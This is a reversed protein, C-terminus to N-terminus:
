PVKGGKGKGDDKSRFEYSKAAEQHIKYEDWTMGMKDVAQRKRMGMYAWGILAIVMSFLLALGVYDWINWERIVVPEPLIIRVLGVSEMDHPTSSFMYDTFNIWLSYDGPAMYTHNFQVSACGTENFETIYFWIPASGDSFEITVNIPDSERDHFVITFGVSTNPLSYSGNTHTIIFAVISPASNNSSVNIYRWRLVEHGERGDTAVASVNFMGAETYVHSTTVMVLSGDSSYNTASPSGDGFDWVLTVNDGDEDAIELSFFVEKSWTTENLWPTEPSALIRDLVYPLSNNVCRIGTVSVSKNHAGIQLLPDMADSYYLVISYNGQAGFVHTFNSWVSANPLSPATHDVRAYVVETDNSIFFTWTIPDGEPDTAVASVTVDDTPDVLLSSVSLYATPSYNRPVYVDILVTTNLYHGQGDSVSINLNFYIHYDGGLGADVVPAWAHTQMFTVPVVSMASTNLAIPSGDGFDWTAELPDDDYDSVNFSVVADVGWTVSKTEPPATTFYPESNDFVWVALNRTITTASGDSVVMRVIYYPDESVIPITTCNGISDYTHYTMVAGPNGSTTVEVPSNPNVSGDALLYDYYITFTLNSGSIDSTANQYFTIEQGILVHERNPSVQLTADTVAMASAPVQGVPQDDMLDMYSMVPSVLILQTVFLLVSLSLVTRRCFGKKGSFGQDAASDTRRVPANSM